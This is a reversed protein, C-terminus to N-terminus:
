KAYRFVLDVRPYYSFISQLLLESCNTFNRIKVKKSFWWYRYEPMTYNDQLTDVKLFQKLEWAYILGMTVKSLM